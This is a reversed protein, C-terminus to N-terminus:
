AVVADFRELQQQTFALADPAANDADCLHTMCGVIKVSPWQNLSAVFASVATPYIGLRHMGTDIKLHVRAVMGLSAAAEHLGHVTEQDYVVLDIAQKVVDHYDSDCYAMACIPKSIGLARLRIADSTSAVFLYEIDAHEQALQAMPELGHGYADAKLVLGLKLSHPTHEVNNVVRIINEINKYFASRSIELWTHAM